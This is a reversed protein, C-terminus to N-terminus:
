CDKLTAIVPYHDSGTAPLKKLSQTCFTTLIHDLPIALLTPLRSSWTLPLHFLSETTSLGAEKLFSQFVPRWAATNMDGAFIVQEDKLASYFYKEMYKLQRNRHILREQTRPSHLHTGLFHIPNGQWNIKVHLLPLHQNLKGLRVPKFPYKTLMIPSDLVSRQPPVHIYYEKEFAEIIEKRYRKHVEQLWVIDPNQQKILNIVALQDANKHWINFSLVKITENKFSNNEIIKNEESRQLAFGIWLLNMALIAIIFLAGKFRKFIFFLVGTVAYAMCLQLRYQGLYDALLVDASILPWLSGILFCTIIFSVIM